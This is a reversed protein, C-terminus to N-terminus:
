TKDKHVLLSCLHLMIILAIALYAFTITSSAYMTQFTTMVQLTLQTQPFCKQIISCLNRMNM